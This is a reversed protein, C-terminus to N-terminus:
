EPRSRINFIELWQSWLSAPKWGTEWLSALNGGPKGPPSHSFLLFLSAKQSSQPFWPLGQSILLLLFLRSKPNQPKSLKLTDWLLQQDVVQSSLLGSASLCALLLCAPTRPMSSPVALWTGCSPSTQATGSRYARFCLLAGPWGTCGPM